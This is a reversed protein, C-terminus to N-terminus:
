KKKLIMIFWCMVKKNWKISLLLLFKLTNKIVYFVMNFISTSVFILIKPKKNIHAKLVMWGGFGFKEM